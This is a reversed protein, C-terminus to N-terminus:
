IICIVDLNLWIYISMQRHSMKIGYYWSLFFLSIDFSHLKRNCSVDLKQRQGERDKGKVGKGKHAKSSPNYAQSTDWLM